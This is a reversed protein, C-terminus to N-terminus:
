HEPRHRQAGITKSLFAFAKMLMSRQFNIM